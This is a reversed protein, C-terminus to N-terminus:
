LDLSERKPQHIPTIDIAEHPNYVLKYTPKYNIIIVNVTSIDGVFVM